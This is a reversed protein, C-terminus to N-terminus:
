YYIIELLFFACKASDDIERKGVAFAELDKYAQSFIGQVNKIEFSGHGVNNSSVMPDM